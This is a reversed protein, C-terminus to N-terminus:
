FDGDDAQGDDATLSTLTRLFLPNSNAAPKLQLPTESRDGCRHRDTSCEVTSSRASRHYIGHLSVMGIWEFDCFTVIGVVAGVINSWIEV